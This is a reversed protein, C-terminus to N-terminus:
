SAIMTVAPPGHMGLASSSCSASPPRRTHGTPGRSAWCNNFRTRVGCPMWVSVLILHMNTGSIPASPHCSSDHVAAAIHHNTERANRESATGPGDEITDIPGNARAFMPSEHTRVARPLRRKQLDDRAVAPGRAPMDMHQSLPVARGVEA